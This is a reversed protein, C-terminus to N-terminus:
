GGFSVVGGPLVVAPPVMELAADRAAREVREAELERARKEARVVEPDIFDDVHYTGLGLGTCIAAAAEAEKRPMRKSGISPNSVGQPGWAFRVEVLDGHVISKLHMNVYALVSNGTINYTVYLVQTATDFTGRLEPGSFTDPGLIQRAYQELARLLTRTGHPAQAYDQTFISSYKTHSQLMAVHLLKPSAAGGALFAKVWPFSFALAIYASLGVRADILTCETLFQRAVQILSDKM